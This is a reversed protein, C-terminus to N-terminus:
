TVSTRMKRRSRQMPSLERSLLTTCTSSTLFATPSNGRGCLYSPLRNPLERPRMLLSSMCATLLGAALLAARLIFSEAVPKRVQTAHIGARTAQTIRMVGSLRRGKEEKGRGVSPSVHSVPAAALWASATVPADRFIEVMEVTDKIGGEPM